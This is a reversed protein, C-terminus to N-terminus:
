LKWTPILLVRRRQFLVSKVTKYLYSVVMWQEDKLLPMLVNLNFQFLSELCKFFLNNHYHLSYFSSSPIGSVAWVSGEWPQVQFLLSFRHRIYLWICIVCSSFFKSTHPSLWVPVPERVSGMGRMQLGSNSFDSSMLLFIYM